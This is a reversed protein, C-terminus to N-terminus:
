FSYISEKWLKDKFVVVFIIKFVLIGFLGLMINDMKLFYVLFM